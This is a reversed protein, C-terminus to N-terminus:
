IDYPFDVAQEAEIQESPRFDKLKRNKPATTEKKEEAQSESPQSESSSSDRQPATTQNESQAVTVPKPAKANQVGLIPEVADVPIIGDVVMGMGVLALTIFAFM